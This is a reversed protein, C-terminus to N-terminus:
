RSGGRSGSGRNAPKEVRPHLRPEVRPRVRRGPRLRCMLAMLSGCTTVTRPRRLDYPVLITTSPSSRSTGAPSITPRIPALPAPLVVVTSHMWPSRLGSSPRSRTSPRSGTVCASCSRGSTPLWSWDEASGSRSLTASASSSNLVWRARSPPSSSSCNPSVCRRRDTNEESLPPSRCRSNRTRARSLRGRSTIRSSSVWPRSGAARRVTQSAIRWSFSSPVVTSSTVWSISSASASQSRTATIRAPWTMSAPAGASRTSRCALVATIRNLM